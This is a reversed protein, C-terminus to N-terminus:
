FAPQKLCVQFPGKWIGHFIVTKSRFKSKLHYWPEEGWLRRSPKKRASFSGLCSCQDPWSKWSSVNLYSHYCAIAISFNEDPWSRLLRRLGNESFSRSDVVFQEMHVCHTLCCDVVAISRFLKSRSFKEVSGLNLKKVRELNVEDKQPEFRGM